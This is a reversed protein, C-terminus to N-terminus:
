TVARKEALGSPLVAEPRSWPKSWLNVAAASEPGAAPALTCAASSFRGSSAQISACARARNKANTCATSV